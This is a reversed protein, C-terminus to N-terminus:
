SDAWDTIFSERNSLLASSPSALVSFRREAREIELIRCGPIGLQRAAEQGAQQPQEIGSIAEGNRIM